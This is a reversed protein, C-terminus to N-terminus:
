TAITMFQTVGNMFIPQFCIGNFQYAVNGNVNVQVAGPPLEPVVVGIPPATIVFGGDQQVYFAGGAYYYAVNGADIQVAGDPLGQVVAGVPPYVVQYDNGAQQYYMGDDYFYPTGGVFLRVYGPRLGHYRAGYVFGHWFQPRRVDVDVDRHVFVHQRVDTERQVQVPRQVVHTDVHRITGHNARDVTRRVEPARAPASRPAAEAKPGRENKQSEKPHQAYILPLAALFALLGVAINRVSATTVSKM